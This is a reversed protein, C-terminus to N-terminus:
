FNFYVEGTELNYKTGVIMLKNARVYQFLIPSSNLRSVTHRINENECRNKIDDGGVSRAIELSPQIESIIAGINPGHEVGAVAGAVAGCNQHGLVLVLPVHLFDVAYEVSGISIADAVNGATRVVFLQGIGVDFVIEPPVRSDSCGFIVALPFQGKEALATRANTFDSQHLTEGSIYRKNGDKLIQLASQSDVHEFLNKRM